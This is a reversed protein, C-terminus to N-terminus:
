SVTINRRFSYPFTSVLTGSIGVREHHAQIIADVKAFVRVTRRPDMRIAAVGLPRMTRWESRNAQVLNPSGGVRGCCAVSELEVGNGM